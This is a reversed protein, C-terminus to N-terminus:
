CYSFMLQFSYNVIIEHRICEYTVNVNFLRSSRNSTESYKSPAIIIKETHVSLGLAQQTQQLSFACLPSEQGARCQLARSPWRETCSSGSQLLDSSMLGSGVARCLQATIHLPCSISHEGTPIIHPNARHSHPHHLLVPPDRGGPDRSARPVFLKSVRPTITASPTYLHIGEM